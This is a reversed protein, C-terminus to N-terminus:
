IVPFILDDMEDFLNTNVKVYGEDDIIFDFIISIEEGYITNLSDEELLTIMEDITLFEFEDALYKLNLIPLFNVTVSYGNETEIENEVIYTCSKFMLEILSDMSSKQEDTPNLKYQAFFDVSINNITATHNQLATDGDVQTVDTYNETNGLYACDLYAQIYASADFSYSEESSKCATLCSLTLILCLLLSSIKM